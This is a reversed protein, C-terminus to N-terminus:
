KGDERTAMTLALPSSGSKTLSTTCLGIFAGLEALAVPSSPLYDTLRPSRVIVTAWKARSVAVNVRNRSLLFGMGRPVESPASATMSVIVVPAQQGQPVQRGNGSAGAHVAGTDLTRRITAVQANYPAVVLVDPQALPRPMAEASECWQASLFRTVQRVVEDAEEVSSTANDHHDIAIVQVGPEVGVLSRQTTEPTKSKLQGEYALRSVAACVAPHM